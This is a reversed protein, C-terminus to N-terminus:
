LGITGSNAISWVPRQWSPRFRNMPRSYGLLKQIPVIKKIPLLYFSDRRGLTRYVSVIFPRYAQTASFTIRCTAPVIRVLLSRTEVFSRACLGMILNHSNM